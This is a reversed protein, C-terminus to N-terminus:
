CYETSHTEYVTCFPSCMALWPICELKEIHLSIDHFKIKARLVITPLKQSHLALQKIPFYNMFNCKGGFLKSRKFM